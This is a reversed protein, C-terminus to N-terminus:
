DRQAALRAKLGDLIIELGQEFPESGAMWDVLEAVSETILPYQDPPL